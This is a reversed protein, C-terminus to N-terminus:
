VGRGYKHCLPGNLNSPFTMKRRFRIPLHTLRLGFFEALFAFLLDSMKAEDFDEEKSKTLSPKRKIVTEHLIKNRM